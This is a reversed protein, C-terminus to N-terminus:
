AKIDLVFNRLQRERIKFYITDALQLQMGYNISFLTVTGTVIPIFWITKFRM